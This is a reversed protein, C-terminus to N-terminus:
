YCLNTLNSYFPRLEDIDFDKITCKGALFELSDHYCSYKAIGTKCGNFICDFHAKKGIGIASVLGLAKLNIATNKSNM